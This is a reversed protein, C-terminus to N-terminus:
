PSRLMDTLRSSFVFISPFFKSGITGDLKRARWWKGTEDLIELIENKTFSLENYDEPSAIYPYLARAKCIVDTQAAPATPSTSRDVNTEVSPPLGGKPQIPSRTEHLGKMEFIPDDDDLPKGEKATEYFPKVRRWLRRYPANDGSSIHAAYGLVDLIRVFVVPNTSKNELLNRVVDLFRRSTSETMFFEGADRLMIAWLKAALLQSRPTGYKLERRIATAAEKAVARSNSARECIDLATTWDEGGLNTLYGILRLVEGPTGGSSPSKSLREEGMTRAQGVLKTFWGNRKRESAGPKPSNTASASSSSSKFQSLLSQLSFTSVSMSAQKYASRPSTQGSTEVDSGVDSKPISDTLSVSDSDARPKIGSSTASTYVPSPPSSDLAPERNFFSCFDGKVVPNVYSTARQHTRPSHTAELLDSFSRNAGLQSGNPSVPSAARYEVNEWVQTFLSGSWDSAPSTSVPTDMEEVNQLVHSATPRSSPTADWCASMLAWMADSLEPAGEPRSPRKGQAVNFAVAMENAFEPFPHLGTFIEYCVCAYSYVDSEKSPGGGGLLLEPALWRTTGSPRTSSTTFRLGQTDAVHSLGFDAICARLSDTILINVGKLDGHVIKKKHLYALGSAVDYVLM